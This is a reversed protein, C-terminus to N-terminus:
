NNRAYVVHNYSINKQLDLIARLKDDTLENQTKELPNVVISSLEVPKLSQEFEQPQEGLTCFYSEQKAEVSPYHAIPHFNDIKDALAYFFVDAGPFNANIKTLFVLDCYDLASAFLNAGGIIFIKSYEISESAQEQESIAMPEKALALAQEASTCTEVQYQKALDPNSTIVINRRKPLPRGISEFTRRGMIVCSNLTQQKFFQLDGPIYWPMTGQQGIEYNLGCAVVLGTKVDASPYYNINTM